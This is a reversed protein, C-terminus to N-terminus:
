QSDTVSSNIVQVQSSTASLVYRRHKAIDQYASAVWVKILFRDQESKDTSAEVKALEVPIVGRASPARSDTFYFLGSGQVMAASQWASIHLLSGHDQDLIQYCMSAVSTCDMHVKLIFYRKTWGKQGAGATYCAATVFSCHQMGGQQRMVSWKYRKQGALRFTRCSDVPMGVPISPTKDREPPPYM